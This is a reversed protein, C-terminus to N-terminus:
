REVVGVPRENPCHWTGDPQQRMQPKLEAAGWRYADCNTCRRLPQPSLPKTVGGCLELTAAQTV